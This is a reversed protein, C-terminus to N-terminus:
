DESDDIIIIENVRKSKKEAISTQKYKSILVDYKKKIIDKLPTERLM